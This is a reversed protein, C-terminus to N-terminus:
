RTGGECDALRAEAQRQLEAIREREQVLLLREASLVTVNAPGSQFTWEACDNVSSAAAPSQLSVTSSRALDLVEDALLAPASGGDGRLVLVPAYVDPPAPPEGFLTRLSVVAVSEGRLNLFGEVIRPQGPLSSMASVFVIERILHTQLAYLRDAVSFILFLEDM